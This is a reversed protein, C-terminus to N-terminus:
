RGGIMQQTVELARRYGVVTNTAPLEVRDCLVRAAFDQTANGVIHEASAPPLTVLATGERSYGAVFLRTYTRDQCHVRGHELSQVVSKGPGIVVPKANAQYFWFDYGDGTPKIEDMVLFNAGLNNGAFLQLRGEPLPPPATEAASEAFLLMAAMAIEIGIM